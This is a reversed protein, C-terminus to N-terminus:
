YADMSKANEIAERAWPEDVKELIRVAARRIAVETNWVAEELYRMTDRPRDIKNAELLTHVEDCVLVVHDLDPEVSSDELDFPKLSGSVGSLECKSHARRALDKGLLSLADLYDQHKQRGKAM